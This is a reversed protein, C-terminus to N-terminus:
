PTGSGGMRQVASLPLRSFFYDSRKEIFYSYSQLLIRKDQKAMGLYYLKFPSNIEIEQLIAEARAYNGKAIEIHAQESKDTSTVGDVKKFHASLFPINHQEIINVIHPMDENRAIKRAETLHYMGQDYTDFLYSLALNIHLSIKTKPNAIRTLVRFAYKRAMIVENRVLYYVFLNHYLRDRFFKLLYGDRIQDFLQQQKELINGLEGYAFRGYYITVKIFELLCELEPEETKMTKIRRLIEEDRYRKQKRDLTLQYVEAWKQNSPNSLSKNKDILQQLDDYFGNMYLFEMGKKRIDDSTTELCYQRVLQQVTEEEHEQRWMLLIQEMTLQNHNSLTIISDSMRSAKSNPM